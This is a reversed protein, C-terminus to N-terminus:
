FPLPISLVTYGLVKIKLANNTVSATASIRSGFPGTATVTATGAYTRDSVLSITSNLNFAVTVLPGYPYLRVSASFVLDFTGSLSVTGGSDQLTVAM